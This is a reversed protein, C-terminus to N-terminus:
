PRYVTRCEDAVADAGGDAAAAAAARRHRTSCRRTLGSGLAYKVTTKLVRKNQTECNQYRAEEPLNRSIKNSSRKNNRPRDKKTLLRLSLKSKNKM